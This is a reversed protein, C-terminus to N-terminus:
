ELYSNMIENRFDKRIKVLSDIKSETREFLYVTDAKKTQGEILLDAFDIRTKGGFTTIIENEAATKKKKKVSIVKKKYLKKSTKKKKVKKKKKKSAASYADGSDLANGSSPIGAFVFIFSFMIVTILGTKM